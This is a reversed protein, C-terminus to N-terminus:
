GAEEIPLFVHFTSGAGVTSTAEIWGGHERVIGYAVSLGLGTGEGIEKTTFFPEFIRALVEESMGCGTDTVTIRVTWMPNSRLDAPPRGIVESVNVTVKGGSLCSQVANGVLNTLVQQIQGEDVSTTTAGQSALLEFSVSRKEAMPALFGLAKEVITRVNVVKKQPVHKRAFDLLQRIIVTMRHTQDRIIRASNKAEPSATDSLVTMEAHGSIVSLPTGLEHAIGSALKGVTMLRDAHRLQEVAAIRAHTEVQIKQNGSAIATSMENLARAIQGLEDRQTLSVEGSLDGAAVRRIKELIARIPRSVFLVGLLAALGGTVFLLVLTSVVANRVTALLFEEEERLSEAIEVAHQNAPGVPVYTFLTDPERSQGSKVRKSVYRGRSLEERDAVTLSLGPEMPELGVWGIRIHDRPGLIALARERAALEGQEGLVEALDRALAHGLVVHDRRMDRDFLTAQRQVSIWASASLVVLLGALLALLLKRTLNM